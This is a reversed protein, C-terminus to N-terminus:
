NNFAPHLEGTVLSMVARMFMLVGKETTGTEEMIQKKSQNWCAETSGYIKVNNVMITMTTNLTEKALTELQAKM